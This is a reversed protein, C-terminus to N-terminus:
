EIVKYFTENKKIMGLEYRARSEVADHSKHLHEIQKSLVQNQKKLQENQNVEAMLDKELRWMNRIGGPKFWLTYQLFVFLTGLLVPLLKLHRLFM